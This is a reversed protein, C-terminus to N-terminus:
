RWEQEASSCRLITDFSLQTFAQWLTNSFSLFACFSSGPFLRPPHGLVRLSRPTRFPAQCTPMAPPASIELFSLRAQARGSSM